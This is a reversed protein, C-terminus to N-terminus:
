GKTWINPNPRHHPRLIQMEVRKGPSELAPPGAGCKLNAMACLPYLICMASHSVITIDTM